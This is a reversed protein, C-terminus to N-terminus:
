STSLRYSELVLCELGNLTVRVTGQSYKTRYMEQELDMAKKGNSKFESEEIFTYNEAEDYKRVYMKIVCECSHKKSIARFVRSTLEVGIVGVVYFETEDKVLEMDWSKIENFMHEHFEYEGEDKKLELVFVSRGVFDDPLKPLTTPGQLNSLSCILGNTLLKVIDRAGVPGSHRLKKNGDTTKQKKRTGGAIGTSTPSVREEAITRPPATGPGDSFEFNKRIADLNERQFRDANNKAQKQCHIHDQDWM